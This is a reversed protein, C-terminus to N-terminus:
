GPRHPRAPDGGADSGPGAATRRPTAGVAAHLVRRSVGFEGFLGTELLADGLAGDLATLAALPSADELVARVLVTNGPGAAVDLSDAVGWGALTAALAVRADDRQGGAYRIEILGADVVM